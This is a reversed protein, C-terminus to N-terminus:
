SRGDRPPAYGAIGTLAAHRVTEALADRLLEQVFGMTRLRERAVEGVPGQWSEDDIHLTLEPLTVTANPRVPDVTIRVEALRASCDGIHLTDTAPPQRDAKRRYVGKGFERIGARQEDSLPLWDEPEDEAALAYTGQALATYRALEEDSTTPLEGSHRDIAAYVDQQSMPPGAVETQGADSQVTKAFSQAAKAADTYKQRQDPDTADEAMFTLTTAVNNQQRFAHKNYTVDTDPDRWDNITPPANLSTGPDTATYTHESARRTVGGESWVQRLGYTDDPDDFAAYYSENHQGYQVLLQQGNESQMLKDRHRDARDRWKELTDPDPPDHPAPARSAAPLTPQRAEESLPRLNGATDLDRIADPRADLAYRGTLVLAPIRYTGQQGDVAEPRGEAHVQLAGFRVSLSGTPYDVTDPMRVTRALPYGPTDALYLAQADPHPSSM